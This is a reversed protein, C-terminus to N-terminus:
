HRRKNPKSGIKFSALKIQNAKGKPIFFDVIPDKVHKALDAYKLQDIVVKFHNKRKHKILSRGKYDKLHKKMNLHVDLSIVHLGLNVCPKHNPNTLYKNKNIIFCANRNIKAHTKSSVSLM